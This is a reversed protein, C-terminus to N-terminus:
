SKANVVLYGRVELVAYVGATFTVAGNLDIIADITQRGDIKVPEFPAFGYLGNSFQDKTTPGASYVLHGQTEGVRRFFRIPFQPLFEKRNITLSFSGNYLAEDVAAFAPGGLVASNVNPYTYIQAALQDAVSTSAPKKLGIFVHTMVFEDNLELLRETVIPTTSTNGKQLQFAYQSNSGLAVESRLYSQSLNSYPIGTRDAIFKKENIISNM